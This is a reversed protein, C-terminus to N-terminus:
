RALMCLAVATERWWGAASEIGNTIKTENMQSIGVGKMREQM